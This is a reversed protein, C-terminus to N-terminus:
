QQVSGMINQQGCRQTYPCEYIIHQGMHLAHWKLFSYDFYFYSSPYLSPLNHFVLSVLNGFGIVIDEHVGYSEM